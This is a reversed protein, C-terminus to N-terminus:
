KCYLPGIQFVPFIVQRACDIRGWGQQWLSPSPPLQTHAHGSVRLFDGAQSLPHNQCPLTGAATNGAAQSRRPLPRRDAGKRLPSQLLTMFVEGAQWAASGGRQKDGPNIWELQVESQLGPYISYIAKGGIKLYLKKKRERHRPSM